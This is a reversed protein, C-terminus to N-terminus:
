KRDYLKLIYDMVEFADLLDNEHISDSHTAENGVLKLSDLLNAENPYDKTMSTISFHLNSEKYGLNFCMKEISRRLKAGSSALDSHFHSFSQIIENKIENPLNESLDIMPIPPSFYEVKIEATKIDEERDIKLTGTASVTKECNYCIFFSIFKAPKVMIKDVIQVAGLFIGFFKNEDYAEKISTISEEREKEIIKSNYDFGVIKYQFTDM